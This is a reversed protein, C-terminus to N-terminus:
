PRDARTTSALLDLNATLMTGDDTRIRLLVLFARGTRPSVIIREVGGAPVLHRVMQRRSQGRRLGDIPIRYTATEILVPRSDIGREEIVELEISTIVIPAHGGNAVVLDIQGQETVEAAVLRLATRAPRLASLPVVLVICAAVCLPGAFRLRRRRRPDLKPIQLSGVAVGSLYPSVALVTVFILLTVVFAEPLGLWQAISM